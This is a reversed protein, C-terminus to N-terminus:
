VSVSSLVSPDQKLNKISVAHKLPFFIMVINYVIKFIMPDFMHKNTSIQVHKGHLNWIDASNLLLQSPLIFVLM